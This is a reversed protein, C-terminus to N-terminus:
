HKSEHIILICVLRQSQGGSLTIGKSGVITQEQRPLQRLDDELACARIVSQYWQEDFETFATVTQKITSSTHWPTQDCYAISSSSIQVVGQSLPVEGLVAKLLTSKGCGVPGVLLTFQERPVSINISQLLPDTDKEWGLSGDHVAIDIDSALPEYAGVISGKRSLKGSHSNSRKTLSTERCIPYGKESISSNRSSNDEISLQREIPGEREDQREDTQLFSQIRDFCGKSGAFTSLAMILTALPDTLLAFLSLSTFVRTVDLSTKGDSNKALVSFVTFTLVPAVVPSFYAQRTM